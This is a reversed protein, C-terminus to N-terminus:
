PWGQTRQHWPEVATAGLFSGSFDSHSDGAIMTPRALKTKEKVWAFAPHIWSYSDDMGVARISEDSQGPGGYRGLDRGKGRDVAVRAMLIPNKFERYM